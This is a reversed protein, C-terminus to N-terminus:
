FSFLVIGASITVNLSANKGYMPIMVACDCQELTTRNVGSDENGVIFCVKEKDKIYEKLDNLFIAGEALEVATLYFGEAKLREYCSLM